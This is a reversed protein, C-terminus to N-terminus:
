QKARQKTLTSILDIAPIHIGFRFEGPNQRWVFFPEICHFLSKFSIEVDFLDKRDPDYKTLLSVHSGGVAVDLRSHVTRRRAPEDFRLVPAGTIYTKALGFAFRLRDSRELVIEGIPRVWELHQSNDYRFLAGDGRLRFSLWPTFQWSGITATGQLALRDSARDSPQESVRGLRVTGTGFVSGIRGNAQVGFEWDKSVFLDEEIRAFVPLNSSNEFFVSARASKLRRDEEEPTPVNVNDLYSNTFREGEETDPLFLSDPRNPSLFSHALLERRELPALTFAGIQALLETQPAPTFMSGWAISVGQHRNFGVAPVSFQNEVQRLSFGFWPVTVINENFFRVRADYIRGQEGPRIRLKKFGISYDPRILNCTTAEGDFAQWEGQNLEVRKAIFRAGQAVIVANEAFGNHNGFDYWLNTATMTGIPDTVFVRGSAHIVTTDDQWTMEDASFTDIGYTAVAQSAVYRYRKQRVITVSSPIGWHSLPGLKVTQSPIETVTIKAYGLDIPEQASCHGAIGACIVWTWLYRCRM